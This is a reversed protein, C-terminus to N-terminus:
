KKIIVNYENVKGNYQNYFSVCEARKVDSDKVMANQKPVLSNYGDINGSSKMNDM